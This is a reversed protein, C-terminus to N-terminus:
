VFRQSPDDEIARVDVSVLLSQSGGGNTFGKVPVVDAYDRGWAITIHRDTPMQNNTPDFDVWGLGPVQVAVWAHSADAGILRPHGPQPQTELYGSVYRCALGHSRMLALQLQAFDQCVGTRSEFVQRVPTTIDTVGPSYQFDTFIRQTLEMVAELIPRGPLFSQGAYAWMASDCDPVMASSLRYPMLLPDGTAASEWAPSHHLPAHMPASVEVRSEALVELYDHVSEVAFDHRRNGFWDSRERIWRCSPTVVLESREVSQWPTNRPLLVTSSQGDSVASSYQYRTLHRIHFKM